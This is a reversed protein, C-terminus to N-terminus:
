YNVFQKANAKFGKGNRTDWCFLSDQNQACALNGFRIATNSEFAIETPTYCGTDWMSSQPAAAEGNDAMAIQSSSFGRSNQGAAGNQEWIPVTCQVNSFDEEGGANSYDGAYAMCSADPAQFNWRVCQKAAITELWTLKGAFPEVAKPIKVDAPLNAPKQQSAEKGPAAKPASKSTDTQSNPTTKGDEPWAPLEGQAALALREKLKQDAEELQKRFDPKLDKAQALLMSPPLPVAPLAQLEENIRAIESDKINILTGSITFKGNPELKLIASTKSTNPNTDRYLDPEESWDDEIKMETPSLMEIKPSRGVEVSLPPLPQGYAFYVRDRSATRGSGQIFEQYSLPAGRDWYRGLDAFNIKYVVGLDEPDVPHLTKLGRLVSTEPAEQEIEKVTDLYKQFEQEAKAQEASVKQSEPTQASTAVTPASSPESTSPTKSSTSACASLGLSLIIVLPFVSSKRM